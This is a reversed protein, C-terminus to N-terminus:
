VWQKRTITNTLGIISTRIITNTLGLQQRIIINTIGM